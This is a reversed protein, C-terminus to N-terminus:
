CWIEKIINSHSELYTTSARWYNDELGGFKRVGKTGLTNAEKHEKAQESKQITFLYILKKM